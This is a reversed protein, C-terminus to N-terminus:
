FKKGGDAARAEPTHDARKANYELKDRVALSLNLNFRGAYDFVRILLDALEEEEGTLYPIHDSMISKRAAELCESLESHMLAIKTAKMEPEPITDPWWGRERARGHCLDALTNLGAFQTGNM